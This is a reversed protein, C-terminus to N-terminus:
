ASFTPCSTSFLSRNISALLEINPNYTASFALPDALPVRYGGCTPRWLFYSSDFIKLVQMKYEAAQQHDSELSLVKNISDKCSEVENLKKYCNAMGSYIAILLIGPQMDKLELLATRYHQLAKETWNNSDNKQALVLAAEACRFSSYIPYNSCSLFTDYAEQARDTALQCYALNHQLIPAWVPDSTQIEKELLLSCTNYSKEQFLHAIQNLKNMKISDGQHCLVM